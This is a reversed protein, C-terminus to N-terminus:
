MNKQAQLRGPAGDLPRFFRPIEPFLPTHRDNDHLSKAPVRREAVRLVAISETEPRLRL